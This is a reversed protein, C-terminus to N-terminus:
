NSVDAYNPICDRLVEPVVVSEIFFLRSMETETARAKAPGMTMGMVAVISILGATFMVVSDNRIKRATFLCM